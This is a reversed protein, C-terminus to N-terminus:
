LFKTYTVLAKCCACKKIWSSKKIATHALDILDGIMESEILVKLGHVVLPPLIDDSTGPIGDPGHAIRELASVLLAKKQAGTLEEHILLATMGHQLIALPKPEVRKMVLSDVLHTVLDNVVIPSM